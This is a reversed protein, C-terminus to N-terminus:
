TNYYLLVPKFFSYVEQAMGLSIAKNNPPTFEFSYKTYKGLKEKSSLKCPSWNNFDFVEELPKYPKNKFIVKSIYAAITTFNTKQFLSQIKENIQSTTARYIKAIYFILIFTLIHGLRLIEFTPLITKDLSLSSIM